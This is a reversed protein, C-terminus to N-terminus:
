QAYVSLIIPMVSRVCSIWIFKYTGPILAAKVTLKVVIIRKLRTTIVIDIGDIEMYKPVSIVSEVYWSGVSGSRMKFFADAEVTFKTDGSYVVLYVEDIEHNAFYHSSLVLPDVQLVGSPKGFEAGYGYAYGYSYGVCTYV